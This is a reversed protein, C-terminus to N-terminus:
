DEAFFVRGRLQSVVSLVQKIHVTEQQGTDSEYEYELTKQGMENKVFLLVEELHYRYLTKKM